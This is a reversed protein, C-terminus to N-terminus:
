EEVDKSTSPTCWLSGGCLLLVAVSSKFALVEKHSEPTSKELTMSNLQKFWASFPTNYMSHTAGLDSLTSNELSQFSAATCDVATSLDGTPAIVSLSIVLRDRKLM